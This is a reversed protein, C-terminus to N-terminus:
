RIKAVIFPGQARQAVRALSLALVNEQVVSPEPEWWVRLVESDECSYGAADDSECLGSTWGVSKCAATDIVKLRGAKDFHATFGLPDM